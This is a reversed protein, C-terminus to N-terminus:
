EEPDCTGGDKCAKDKKPKPPDNLGGLAQAIEDTLLRRIAQADLGVLRHMLRVPIAELSARVRAAVDLYLAEAETVPILDGRLKAVELEAKEALAVERRTKAATLTHPMKPAKSRDGGVTPDKTAEITAVTADYDVSGDDFRVVRGAREHDRLTTVDVGMRRAAESRSIGRVKTAPTKTKQKAAPMM